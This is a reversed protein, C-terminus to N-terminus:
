IISGGDVVITQGNVFKANAILAYAVDAIEDPYANRGLLTGSALKNLDQGEIWRTEVVGPAISNVRVKPALVRALSKTINIVAAKSAAYAISSGLGTIGAISAINIICGNNDKLHKAAARCCHFMGKVNVDMIQDWHEDKLGELDNHEIFYTMGANNILIDLRGFDNIIRKVMVRVEADQAINARYVLCKQFMGDIEKKTDFAEKESRSYNIVINAGAKALRLAISRGIGTGGGTILAVKEQLM